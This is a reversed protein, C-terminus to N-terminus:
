RKRRLLAAMGLGLLTLSAPEPIPISVPEADVVLANIYAGGVTGAVGVQLFAEYESGNWTMAVNNIAGAGGKDPSTGAGSDISVTTGGTFAKNGYTGGVNFLTVFEGAEPAQYDYSSTFTLDLTYETPSSIRFVMLGNRGSSFNDAIYYDQLTGPFTHGNATLEPTGGRGNSAFGATNTTALTIDTPNNAVDKLTVSTTENAYGQWFYGGTGTFDRNTITDGFNIATITGANAAPTLLALALTALALTKM